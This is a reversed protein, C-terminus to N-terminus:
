GGPAEVDHEAVQVVKMQPNTDDVQEADRTSCQRRQKRFPQARPHQELANSSRRPIM